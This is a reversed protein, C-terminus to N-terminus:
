LKGHDDLESLAALSFSSKLGQSRKIASCSETSFLFWSRWRLKGTCGILALGPVVDVCLARSYLASALVV